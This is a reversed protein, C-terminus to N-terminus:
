HCGLSWINAKKGSITCRRQGVIDLLGEQQMESLRKWLGPRGAKVCLEGSTMEGEKELTEIIIKYTEGKGPNEKYQQWLKKQEPLKEEM